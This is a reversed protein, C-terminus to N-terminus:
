LWPSGYASLGGKYRHITVNPLSMKPFCTINKRERKERMGANMVTPTIFLHTLFSRWQSSVMFLMISRLLAKKRAQAMTSLISISIVINM